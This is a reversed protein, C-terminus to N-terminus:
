FLQLALVQERHPLGAIAGRQEVAFSGAAAGFRLARVLLETSLQGCERVGEILVQSLFGGWFADGAGTADICRAEFAPQSICRDRFYCKAGGAGRTEVVASIGHRRMFQPINDEGGVFVLEEESLKLLDVYGIVSRLGTEASQLDTWLPGRYNIDFSVIKKLEAAQKMVFATADAAPRKSLSCSGCHVITAASIDALSVDAVSLLTDAGPKRAFTFTREGDSSLTVFTMTTIAEGSPVKCLVAVGDNSLTDTLFRGFDDDGVKGLFAAKLGNRAVAIAVNAPAGGANRIYVGQESGPLFDIVMEGVCLLDFM